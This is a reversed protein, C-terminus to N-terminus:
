DALFRDIEDTVTKLNDLFPFHGSKAIVVLKANEILRQMIRGAALPTAHDQEGWLLLSSLKVKKLLSSIDENVSKVLITRMVGSSNRYDESGFKNQYGALRGKFLPGIIPLVFLFKVLKFLYIKLRVMWSKPLKVGASGILILKRGIGRTALFLAIKGGFSHGLLIPNNIKLQCIFAEVINAYDISAFVRPPHESLGFGPLDLLYLTFKKALHDSLGAFYSIDRGWGHLFIMPDGQGLVKYRININELRIFM